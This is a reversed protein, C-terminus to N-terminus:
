AHKLCNTGAERLLVAAAAPDSVDAATGSEEEANKALFWGDQVTFYVNQLKPCFSFAFRGILPTGGISAETLSSCNAFAYDGVEKVSAPLTVAGLYNCNYFAREGIIEVGEPIVIEAMSTIGAFAYAGIEKVSSPIVSNKCGLVLVDEALLCNGEATYVPNGAAVTVSAIQPCGSFAQQGTKTLTAPLDLAALFSCQAFASEGIEEVSGFDVSRLATGYFARRGAKKTGGLDLTANYSFAKEFASEGIEEMTSPLKASRLGNAGYFAYPAVRTVGEPVSLDRIASAGSYLTTKGYFLPTSAENGIELECWAAIDKITVRTINDRGKCADAGIAKLSAPFTIQTFKGRGATCELANDAICVTGDKVIFGPANYDPSVEILHNGIYVAGGTGSGNLYATHYFANDGIHRLSDPLDIEQLSSCLGFAYYRIDTLTDPFEIDTLASCGFFANDGIVTVAGAFRVKELGTCQEFLREPISTIAAPLTVEKIAACGYFAQAGVSALSAPLAPDPLTLSACDRFASGGISELAQGVTVSGLSSCGNFASGGIYTTGEPLTVSKLNGCGYFAYDSVTIEGTVTVNELSAPVASGNETYNAAGFLYGFETATEGPDANDKEGVFPIVLSKLGTCGALVAYGAYTVTEPVSVTTFGSCNELARDDLRTVPLGNVHRAIKVEGETVTGAGTLAYSKGDKELTYELGETAGYSKGCHICVDDTNYVHADPVAALVVDAAALEHLGEADSYYKGCHACYWCAINGDEACTPAKYPLEQPAHVAPKEPEEDQGPETNDEEEGPEEGQGPETNDEEGGPLPQEQETGGNEGGQEAGPACAACSLALVAALLLAAASAFFKKKM